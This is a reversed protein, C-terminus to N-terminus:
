DRMETNWYVESALEDRTARSRLFQEWSVRKGPLLALEFRPPPIRPEKHLRLGAEAPTRNAKRRNCRGCALVCNTWETRGGRSRPMVHDITLERTGPKAGCYQCRERDRLFLNRRSFIPHRRPLGNYRHLVIVEPVPVRLRPSLIVDGDEFLEGLDAWSDFDYTQYDAPDVVR